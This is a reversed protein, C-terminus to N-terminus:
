SSSKKILGICNQINVSAHFLYVGVNRNKETKLKELKLQAWASPYYVKLAIFWFYQRDPSNKKCLLCFVSAPYQGFIGSKTFKWIKKEASLWHWGAMKPENCLGIYVHDAFFPKQGSLIPVKEWNDSYSFCGRPCRVLAQVTAMAALSGFMTINTM